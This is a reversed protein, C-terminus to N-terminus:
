VSFWARGCRLSTQHLVGRKKRAGTTPNSNTAHPPLCVDDDVRRSLRDGFLIAPRGIGSSTCGCGGAEGGGGTETAWCCHCCCCGLPPRLGLPERESDCVM